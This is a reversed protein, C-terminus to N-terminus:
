AERTPTGSASSLRDSKQMLSTKHQSNHCYIHMGAFTYWCSRWKLSHVITYAISQKQGGTINQTWIALVDDNKEEAFSLNM